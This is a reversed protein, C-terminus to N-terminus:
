NYRSEYVGNGAEKGVLLPGIETDHSSLDLATMSLAEKVQRIEIVDV